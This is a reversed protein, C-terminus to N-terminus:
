LTEQPPRLCKILRYNKETSPHGEPLGYLLYDARRPCLTGPIENNDSQNLAQQVPSPLDSRAFSWGIRQLVYLEVPDNSETAAYTAVLSEQPIQNRLQVLETFYPQFKGHFYHQTNAIGILLFSYLFFTKLKQSQLTECLVTLLFTLYIFFASFYYGHRTGHDGKIAVVFFYSTLALILFHRMWKHASHNQQFYKQPKWLLLFIFILGTFNLYSRLIQEYFGKVIGPWQQLVEQPSVLSTNYYTITAHHPTWWKYWIFYGAVSFFLSLLFSPQFVSRPHIPLLFLVLLPILYPRMLFATAFLLPVSIQLLNKSFTQALSNKGTMLFKNQLILHLWVSTGVLFLAFHDPIPIQYHVIANTSCFYFVAFPLPSLPERLFLKLVQFWIVLGLLLFFFNFLKPFTESWQGTQQCPLSILYSFVPLEGISIGPNLGRQVIRPEFFSSKELCYSFGTFLTDAQRIKHVGELPFFQNRLSFLVFILFLILLLHHSFKKQPEM